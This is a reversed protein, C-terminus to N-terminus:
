HLIENFISTNLRIFLILNINEDSLCSRYKNLIFALASFCREVSVETPAAAFIICALEFIHPYKNKNESWFDMAHRSRDERKSNSMDDDFMQLEVMIKDCSGLQDRMCRSSEGDLTNLYTSLEDYDDNVKDNESNMEVPPNMENNSVTPTLDQLRKRVRILHSIATHKSTPKDKLFVRYRADLFVAALFTPNEFMKFEQDAMCQLLSEVFECPLKKKLTLKLGIWEAYLDSMTM